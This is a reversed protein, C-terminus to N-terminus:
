VFAGIWECGQAVGVPDEAVEAELGDEDPAKAEVADSGQDCPGAEEM